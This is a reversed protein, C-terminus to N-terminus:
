FVKLARMVTVIEMATNGQTSGCYVKKEVGRYKRKHFINNKFQYIWPCHDYIKKLTWAMSRSHQFYADCISSLPSLGFSLVRVRERRFREVANITVWDSTGHPAEKLIRVFNQCYGFIKGFRYMPDFIVMGILKQNLRAWYYRVDEEKKLVLPRALLALQRGGKRKLWAQSVDLIEQPNIDDISCESVEVKEAKAKNIWHRLQSKNRGVLHFENLNIETEVGFQNVELIYHSLVHAFDESVQLFIAPTPDKNLFRELILAYSNPHTIPNGIVIRRRRTPIIPCQSLSYAIYGFDKEFFYQLGDQLTLYATCESGYTKLFKKIISSDACAQASDDQKTILSDGLAFCIEPSTTL